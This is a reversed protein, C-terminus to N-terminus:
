FGNSYVVEGNQVIAVAAGPVNYDELAQEVYTELDAAMVDDFEMPEVGTLDLAGSFEISLILENLRPTASVLASQDPSTIDFVYYADGELRVVAVSLTGSGDASAYLYQKWVGKPTIADNIAQPELEQEPDVLAVAVAAASIEDEALTSDVRVIYISSGDETTFLAYEDTSENTT